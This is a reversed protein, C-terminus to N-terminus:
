VVSKRDEKLLLFKQELPPLVVMTAPVIVSPPSYSSRAASSFTPNTSPARTSNQIEEDLFPTFEEADLSTHLNSGTAM